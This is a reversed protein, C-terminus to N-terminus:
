SKLLLAFGDRDLANRDGAPADAIFVAEDPVMSPSVEEPLRMADFLRVGGQRIIQPQGGAAGQEVDVREFCKRRM